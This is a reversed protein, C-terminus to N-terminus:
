LNSTHSCSESKDFTVNRSKDLIFTNTYSSITQSVHCLLIRSLGSFMIPFPPNTTNEKGHNKKTTLVQSKNHFNLTFIKKADM